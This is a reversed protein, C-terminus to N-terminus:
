HDGIKYISTKNIIGDKKNKLNQDESELNTSSKTSDQNSSSGEIELTATKKIIKLEFAGEKQFEESKEFEQDSLNLSIRANNSDSTASKMKFDLSKKLDEELDEDTISKKNRMIELDIGSMSKNLHEKSSESIEELFNFTVTRSRRIVKQKVKEESIMKKIWNRSLEHLEKQRAESKQNSSGASKLCKFNLERVLKKSLDWIGLNKKQEETKM